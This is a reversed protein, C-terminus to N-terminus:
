RLKELKPFVKKFNPSIKHFTSSLLDHSQQVKLLPSKAEELLVTLNQSVEVEFEEEVSRSRL